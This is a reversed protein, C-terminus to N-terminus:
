QQRFIRYSRDRHQHGGCRRLAIEALRHLEGAHNMGMELVLLEHEAELGFITLPVGIENNFNKVPSHVRMKGELLTVIMRRTTTKGSSGTVAVVPVRHRALYAAAADGLARRTDAVVFVPLRDFGPHVAHWAADVVVRRCGAGAVSDVFDHGDFNEGRLAFFLCGKGAARSDTTVASCDGAAPVAWRGQVASLM